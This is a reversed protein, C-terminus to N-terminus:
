ACVYEASVEGEIHKDDRTLYKPGEVNVEFRPLVPLISLSSLLSLHACMAICRTYVTMIYIRIYLVAQKVSSVSNKLKSAAVKQYVVMITPVPALTLRSETSQTPFCCYCVVVVVVRYSM